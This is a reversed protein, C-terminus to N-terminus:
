PTTSLSAHHQVLEAFQQLESTNLDSIAWYTMGRENWHILNYGQRSEIQLDTDSAQVVPWIFLNIYHLNCRYILAAVARNDLYDLRGGTLPFGQSALDEVWPSFDLKGNFWPKVTHQDSSPVDAIHNVMLSRVHSAIVEQALLDATSPATGGRLLSWTVIMIVVLAAALGLLTARRSLGASVSLPTLGFAPREARRLSSRVRQQLAIPVKYYLKSSRVATHLGQYNEYVQTCTSCEALHREIELNRM